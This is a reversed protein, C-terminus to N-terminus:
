GFPALQAFFWKNMM